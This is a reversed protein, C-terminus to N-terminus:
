IYNALKCVHFFGHSWVHLEILFAALARIRAVSNFSCGITRDASLAQRLSLRPSEACLHADYLICEVM